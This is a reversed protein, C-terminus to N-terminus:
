SALASVVRWILLVSVVASVACIGVGLAAGRRTRDFELRGCYPCSTRGHRDFTLPAFGGCNDCRAKGM